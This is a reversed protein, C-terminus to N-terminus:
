KTTTLYLLAKRIHLGNAAQEFYYAYNSDDISVDIESVKPLPHMIKFGAKVGELMEPKLCYAESVEKYQQEGEIGEPFRERQIRTMYLVDVLKVIDQLEDLKHESFQIGKNRLIQLFTEPVKLVEPSVFYIKCGEYKSLAILLSHVTRGYKLDGVLGVEVGDIKGKIEKVTFLDLMTQTPHQNPGDGANILPINLIDAALQASGGSPHRIVVADAKYGKIMRITDSITEGKGLSSGGVDFDLVRGGMQLMVMQFSLSTRTSQEFFLPAMIKGDMSKSFREPNKKIEEAYNLLFDFDSRSFDETSIINRNFFINEM